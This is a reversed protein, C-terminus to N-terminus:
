DNSKVREEIMQISERASELVGRYPYTQMVDNIYKLVVMAQKEDKNVLLEIGYQTVLSSLDDKDREMIKKITTNLYKYIDPNDSTILEIFILEFIAANKFVNSIKLKCIHELTKRAEDYQKLSSLYSGRNVVICTNLPNRLKAKEYLTFYSSDMEDIRKGDALEKSIKLQKYLSEVSKNEKILYYINMGDNPIGVDMPVLNSMGMLFGLAINAFCFIDLLLDTNFLGILICILGIIINAFGGGLLYLIYGKLNPSPPDMLCQGGTSAMHYRSFRIKGNDNTWIYSGIRFSVFKFGNLLGFLCHGGEHIVIQLIFSVVFMIILYFLVDFRLFDIDNFLFIMLVGLFLGLTIGMIVQIFNSFVKKFM